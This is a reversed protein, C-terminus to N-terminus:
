PLASLNSTNVRPQDSAIDVLGTPSTSGACPYWKTSEFSSFLALENQSRLFRLEFVRDVSVRV